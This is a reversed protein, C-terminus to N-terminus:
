VGGESHHIKMRKPGRHHLFAHPTGLIFHTHDWNWEWSTLEDKMKREIKCGVSGGRVLFPLLYFSVGKNRRANSTYTENQLL